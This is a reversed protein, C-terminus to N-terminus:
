RTSRDLDRGFCVSTPDNDYPAFNTIRTFGSTEYRRIAEPQRVGTELIMRTFGAAQARAVASDILLVGIRQGRAEPAVYMRKLEATTSGPEYARFAASGVASDGHFAVLFTTAAPDLANHDDAVHYRAFLDADLAAILQRAIPSDAPEVRIEITV